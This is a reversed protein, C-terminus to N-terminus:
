NRYNLKFFVVNNDQRILLAPGLLKTIELIIRNGHDAYGRLDIYVGKYGLKKITKIQTNLPQQSMKQYFLDGDGGKMGGYSWRLTKSYNFGSLLDYSELQYLNPVEPFQMYPLQYIAGKPEVNQEISEIFNKDLLYDQNKQVRESYFGAPTQDYLGILILSISCMLYIFNKTHIHYKKSFFQSFYELYLLVLVLSTFNIFISIRNWCRILPTFFISFFAGLGGITGFLFYIFTLLSFFLIRPEIPYDSLKLLISIFALIFGIAAILGLSSISNENILPFEQNYNKKFNNFKQSRHKDQPLLLQIM